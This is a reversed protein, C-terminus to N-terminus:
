FDLTLKCKSPIPLSHCKAVLMEVVAVKPKNLNQYAKIGWKSSIDSLALLYKVVVQIEQKNTM